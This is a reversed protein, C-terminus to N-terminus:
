SGERERDGSQYRKLLKKLQAVQGSQERALDRTEYPDTALDFLQTEKGDQNVLLKWDGMRVAYAATTELLPLAGVCFLKM